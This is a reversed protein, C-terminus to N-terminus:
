FVTIFPNIGVELTYRSNSPGIELIMRDLGKKLISPEEGEEDRLKKILFESFRKSKPYFDEAKEAFFTTPYYRVHNGETVITVVGLTEMEKMVNSVTQHAIGIDEALTGQASGPNELLASLLEGGMQRNLLVFLRVDEPAILGEPLHVSRSGVDRETVFGSDKLKGLHWLITNVNIDLIASLDTMSICPCTTLATYIQRRNKNSFTKVSRKKLTGRQYEKDKLASELAKGVGKKM